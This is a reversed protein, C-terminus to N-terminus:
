AKRAAGGHRGKVTIVPNASGSSVHSVAELRMNVGIDLHGDENARRMTAAITPRERQLQHRFFQFLM